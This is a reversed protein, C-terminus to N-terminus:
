LTMHDLSRSPTINKDGPFYLIPTNSIIVYKPFAWLIWQFFLFLFFNKSISCGKLSTNQTEKKDRISIWSKINILSKWHPINLYLLISSLIWIWLKSQTEHLSINDKEPPIYSKDWLFTNPDTPSLIFKLQGKCPTVMLGQYLQWTHTCIPLILGLYTNIYPLFLIESYDPSLLINNKCPWKQALIKVNTYSNASQM